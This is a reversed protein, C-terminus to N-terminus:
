ARAEQTPAVARIKAQGLSKVPVAHESRMAFDYSLVDQPLLDRLDTDFLAHGRGCYLSAPEEYIKYKVIGSSASPFHGLGIDISGNIIGNVIFEQSGIELQVTASNNGRSLFTGIVEPLIYSSHTYDGGHGAICLKGAIVGRLSALDTEFHELSELVASASAYVSRGADTLMFGSRGRQCLKVGFREEFNTLTGSIHSLSMGLKTQAASLGGSDAVAKFVRIAILDSVQIQPATNRM